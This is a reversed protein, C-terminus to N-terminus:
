LYISFFSGGAKRAEEMATQIITRHGIHLGDFNGIAIYTNELGEELDVVDNIIKM